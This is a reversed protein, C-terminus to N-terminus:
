PHTGKSIRARLSAACLALAPTAADAEAIVDYNAHHGIFRANRTIRAGGMQEEARIQGWAAIWGCGEPVLQMAADLSTTFHPVAVAQACHPAYYVREIDIVGHGTNENVPAWYRFPARDCPVAALMIDRDLERLGESAGEIREVLAKLDTM